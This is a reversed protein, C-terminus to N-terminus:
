RPAAGARAERSGQGGEEAPGQGTAAEPVQSSLVTSSKSMFGRNVPSLFLSLDGRGMLSARHCVGPPKRWVGRGMFLVGSGLLGEWLELDLTRLMLVGPAM